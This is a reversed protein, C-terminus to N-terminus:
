PRPNKKIELLLEEPKILYGRSPNPPNNNAVPHGKLPTFIALQSTKVLLIADEMVFGWYDASTVSLGSPEWSQSAQYWCETEIFLNGTEKWRRDTKVEVTQGGTLLGHVLQEGAYGDRYDLDWDSNKV